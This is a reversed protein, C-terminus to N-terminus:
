AAHAVLAAVAVAPACRAAWERTEAPGDILTAFDVYRLCAGNWRWAQGTDEDGWAAIAFPAVDHDAPLTAKLSNMFPMAAQPRHHVPVIIALKM